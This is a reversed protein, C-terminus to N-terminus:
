KSDDKSQDPPTLMRSHRAERWQQLLKREDPTLEAATNAVTGYVATKFRDEAERVQMLAALFKDKDFPEATLLANADLWSSRVNDRLGKMAKRATLIQNRIKDQHEAPLQDVFALFGRSKPEEEHEHHWFATALFGVFLLNLALSAIFAPYLFRPRTAAMAHNVEATM